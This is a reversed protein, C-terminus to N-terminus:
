NYLTIVIMCIIDIFEIVTKISHISFNKFIEEIKLNAVFKKFNKYFQEERQMITIEKLGGIGENIEKIMRAREKSAIKGFHQTKNKLVFLLLGGSGCLFGVTALTILPEVVLLLILIGLAILGNM